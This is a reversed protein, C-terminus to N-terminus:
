PPPEIVKFSQLSGDPQGAEETLTRSGIEVLLHLGRALARLDEADPPPPPNATSVRDM